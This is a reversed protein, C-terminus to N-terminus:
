AAYMVIGATILALGIGHDRTLREGLLRWSLAAVMVHTLATSMYVVGLTLGRLALYSCAAASVFLGLALVLLPLRRDRFYAKYSVQALATSILAGALAALSGSM